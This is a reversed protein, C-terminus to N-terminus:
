SFTNSSHLYLEVSEKVEASSPPPHDAEHRPRKVGSSLSGPIWQMPPQTPGLVPRSLTYFHLTWLRPRSEFGSWGITRNYQLISEKIMKVNTSASLVSSPVRETISRNEMWGQKGVVLMIPLLINEILSLLDGSFPLLVMEHFTM